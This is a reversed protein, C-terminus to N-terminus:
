VNKYNGKSDRIMTQKRNDGHVYGVHICNNDQEWILQDYELGSKRIFDFQAQKTMGDIILDACCGSSHGRPSSTGGIKANLAPSRYACDIKIPKGLKERLPNLLYFLLNLLNTLVKLDNTTNNIGNAKAIDSHFLETFNFYLKNM